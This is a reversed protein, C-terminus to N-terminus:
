GKNEYAESPRAASGWGEGDGGNNIHESREGVGGRGTAGMIQISAASALAPNIHENRVFGM